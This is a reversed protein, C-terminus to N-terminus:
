LQGIGQLIARLLSAAEGPLNGGDGGGSIVTLSQCQSCQAVMKAASGHPHLPVRTCTPDLAGTHNGVALDMKRSLKNGGRVGTEPFWGLFSQKQLVFDSAKCLFSLKFLASPILSLRDILFALFM